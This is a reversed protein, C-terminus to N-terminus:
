QLSGASQGVGAKRLMRELPCLGTISSQFLNVGVFATFLFWGPHVWWGLALSALIFVGAFRRIVMEMSSSQHNKM